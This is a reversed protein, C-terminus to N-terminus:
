KNKRFFNYWYSKKKNFYFIFTSLLTKLLSQDNEDDYMGNYEIGTEKALENSSEMQNQKRFHQHIIQILNERSLV